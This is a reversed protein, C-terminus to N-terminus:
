GSGELTLICMRLSGCQLSIFKTKYRTLKWFALCRHSIKVVCKIKAKKPHLMKIVRHSSGSVLLYEDFSSLMASASGNLWSYFQWRNTYYLLIYDLPRNATNRRIYCTCSSSQYVIRRKRKVSGCFRRCLEPSVWNAGHKLGSSM